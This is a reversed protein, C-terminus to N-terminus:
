PGGGNAADDDAIILRPATDPAPVQPQQKTLRYDLRLPHGIFGEPLLLRRPNTHGDAVLGFLDMLEREFLWAAPWVTSLTTWAPHEDDLAVEIRARTGHSRSALLLILLFRNKVATTRDFRDIATLDILDCAADPDDKLFRAVAVLNQPAIAIVEVDREVRRSIMTSASLRGALLSAVALTM